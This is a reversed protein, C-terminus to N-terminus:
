SGPVAATGHVGNEGYRANGSVNRATRSLGALEDLLERARPNPDVPGATVEVFQMRGYPVVSIRRVLVGRAVILDEERERYAWSRFRNRLIVAGAAAAVVAAGAAIGGTGAGLGLGACLGAAVALAAGAATAETLRM